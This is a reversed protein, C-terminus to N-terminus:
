DCGFELSNSVQLIDNSAVSIKDNMWPELEKGQELFTLAKQSYSVLTKLNAIAMHITDDKQNDDTQHVTTTVSDIDIPDEESSSMGIVGINQDPSVGLENHNESIINSVTKKFIKEYSESLTKIDKRNM